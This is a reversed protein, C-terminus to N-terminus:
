SKASKEARLAKLRREEILVAQYSEREAVLWEPEDRPCTWCAGLRVARSFARALCAARAAAPFTARLGPGAFRFLSDYGPM